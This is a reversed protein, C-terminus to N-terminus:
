NNLIQHIKQAYLKGIPISEGAIILRKMTRDYSTILNKNIIYQKHCRIFSNDLITSISDLSYQRTQFSTDKCYISLVHSQSKIYVIDSIFNRHIVRNTDSIEITSTQLYGTILMQHLQSLIDEPTYPKPIYNYCHFNSLAFYNDDSVATLFLIPSLVYERISRVMQALFFGGRNVSENTLQVDFLFLTFYKATEVSSRILSEAEEYTAARHIAWSPYANHITEYLINLQFIDDEVILIKHM